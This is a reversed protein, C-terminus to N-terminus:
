IGADLLKENLHIPKVDSEECFEELLQIGDLFAISRKQVVANDRQARSQSIALMVRHVFQRNHHRSGGM